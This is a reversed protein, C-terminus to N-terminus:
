RLNRKSSKQLITVREKMRQFANSVHTRVSMMRDFIEEFFKTQFKNQLFKKLTESREKVRKLENSEVNRVHIFHIAFEDFSTM